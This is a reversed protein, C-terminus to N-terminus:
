RRGGRAYMRAAEYAASHIVKPTRHRMERAEDSMPWRVKMDEDLIRSIADIADDHTAVPFPMLEEEVLAHVLDVTTKDYITRFLSAPMYFRGQEFVPILRRVRDAKSMSGGLPTIRFRYNRLGQENEVHAIDAQLGYQEYGVGLPRWKEHLAFLMDARETLSLRDRVLDLLHYNRDAGLGIVAFVTWDSSKRKANAPDVLIYANLGRGHAAGKSYNIWERKFGQTEDGKPNLLMQCSFTWPGQTRRKETLYAAPRFICNEPTLNDSGDKTCPYVRPRVVGSRIMEGYTDNFHYRTGIVRFVGDLTGLNDSLKWAATTKEIQEPTGVSSPVVIDDYVRLMYHKGIPSGDVLGSCEVTAEKPNTDRKVILGDQESWKPSEKAPNAYLIEPFLGKLHENTEMERKLQRLLAAAVSWTHSFLGVTINPNILIDQLTKAFTIITTKYFDRSWLDLHGNPSAQVERCREFLWPHEVDPRNCGYRLLAYLDNRYLNRLHEVRESEPCEKLAEFIRRSEEISAALRM